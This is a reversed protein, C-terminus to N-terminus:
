CRKEKHFRWGIWTWTRDQAPNLLVCHWRGTDQKVGDSPPALTSFERATCMFAIFYFPVLIMSESSYQLLLSLNISFLGGLTKIQTLAIESRGWPPLRKQASARKRTTSECVSGLNKHCWWAIHFAERERSAWLRTRVRPEELSIDWTAQKTRDHCCGLAWIQWSTCLGLPLWHIWKM